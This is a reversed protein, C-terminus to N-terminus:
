YTISRKNVTFYDSERLQKEDRVYTRVPRTFGAVGYIGEFEGDISKTSSATYDLGGDCLYNKHSVRVEPDISGVLADDYQGALTDNSLGYFENNGGPVRKSMTKAIKTNQTETQIPNNKSNNTFNENVPTHTNVRCGGKNMRLSKSNNPVNPSSYGGQDGTSLDKLIPIKYKIDLTVSKIKYLITNNPMSVNIFLLYFGILILAIIILILVVKIVKKLGKSNLKNKIFNENDQSQFQNM